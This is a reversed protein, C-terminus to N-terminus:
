CTFGKINTNKELEIEAKKVFYNSYDVPLEMQKIKKQLKKVTDLEENNNITEVEILTDGNVIEKIALQLEEKEYVFDHEQISMMEKYGIAELFAKGEALNIIECDIKNQKLIEGDKNIDKVKYTLKYVKRESPLYEKIDRLLIANKLIERATKDEIELDALIFYTDCMYFQRRIKFGKNELIRYIDEKSCELKLTIENSMVNVGVM